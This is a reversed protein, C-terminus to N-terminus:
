SPVDSDSPVGVSLLERGYLLLCPLVPVGEVLIDDVTGRCEPFYTGVVEGCPRGQGVMELSEGHDAQVKRIYAVCTGDALLAPHFAIADGSRKGSRQLSGFSFSRDSPM